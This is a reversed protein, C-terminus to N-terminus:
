PLPCTLFTEPDVKKKERALLTGLNPSNLPANLESIARLTHVTSASTFFGILIARVHNPFPASHDTMYTVFSSGEVRTEEM